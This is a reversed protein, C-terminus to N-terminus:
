QKGARDLHADARRRARRQALHGGAEEQGPAHSRRRTLSHHTGKQTQQRDRRQRTDGTRREARMQGAHRERELREASKQDADEGKAGRHQKMGESQMGARAQRPEPKQRTMLRGDFTRTRRIPQHEVM